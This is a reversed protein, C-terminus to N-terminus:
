EEEYSDKTYSQPYYYSRGVNILANIKRNNIIYDKINDSMTLKHHYHKLLRDVIDYYGRKTREGDVQRKGIYDDDNGLTTWTDEHELLANSNNFETNNIKGRLSPSLKSLESLIWKRSTELSKQDKYPSDEYNFNPQNLESGAGNKIALHHVFLRKVLKDHFDDPMTPTNKYGLHTICFKKNNLINNNYHEQYGMAEKLAADHGGTNKFATEYDEYPIGKSGAEIINEHTAGLNRLRKVTARDFTDPDIDHSRAESYEDYTPTIEQIDSAIKKNSNFVKNVM